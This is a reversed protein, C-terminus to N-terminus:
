KAKKNRMAEKKKKKKSADQGRWHSAHLRSKFIKPAQLWWNYASFFSCFNPPSAELLEPLSIAWADRERIGKIRGQHDYELQQTTMSGIAHLEKWGLEGNANLRLHGVAKRRGGGPLGLGAMLNRKEMTKAMQCHYPFAQYPVEKAPDHELWHGTIEAMAGENLKCVVKVLDHYNGKYRKVFELPSLTKGPKLVDPLHRFFEMSWLFSCPIWQEEGDDSKVKEWFTPSRLLRIQAMKARQWCVDVINYGHKEKEQDRPEHKWGKAKKHYNNYDSPRIHTVLHDGLNCGGRLLM